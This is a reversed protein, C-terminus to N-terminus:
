CVVTLQLESRVQYRPRNRLSRMQANRWLAVASDQLTGTLDTGDGRPDSEDEDSAHARTEAILRATVYQAQVCVRTFGQARFM